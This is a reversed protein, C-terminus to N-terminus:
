RIWVDVGILFLFVSGFICAYAYLAFLIIKEFTSVISKKKIKM